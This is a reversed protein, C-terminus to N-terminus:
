RPARRDRFKQGVKASRVTAAIPFRADAEEARASTLYDAGGRFVARTGDARECRIEIPTGARGAGRASKRSRDAVNEWYDSLFLSGLPSPCM